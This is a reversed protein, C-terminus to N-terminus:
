GAVIKEILLISVLQKREGKGARPKLNFQFLACCLVFHNKKEAKIKKLSVV